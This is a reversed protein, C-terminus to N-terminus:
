STWHNEVLLLNPLIKPCKNWGPPMWYASALFGALQGVIYPCSELCLTIQDLVDIIGLNFFEATYRKNFNKKENPKYVDLYCYM